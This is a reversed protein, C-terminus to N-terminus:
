LPIAKQFMRHRMPGAQPDLGLALVYVSQPLSYITCKTVHAPPFMAWTRSPVKHCVDLFGTLPSRSKDGFTITRVHARLFDLM